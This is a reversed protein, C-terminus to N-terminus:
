ANTLVGLAQLVGHRTRPDLLKSTGGSPAPNDPDGGGAGQASRGTLDTPNGTWPPRGAHGADATEEPDPGEHILDDLNTARDLHGALEHVLERIEAPDLGALLSRVSVSTADYAPFVVPGLEHVDADHVERQEGRGSRTWTDGGDAIEFRFSMGKVANGAIAQRIPEVVPNDFLEASVFLGDARDDLDLIEAIPVAGVRPDRGHEWQMVPTRQELSRKFAGARITEDFDGKLDRIRTPRGYVAAYGELRRGKKPDRGRLEFDFNRVCVGLTRTEGGDVTSRGKAAPKTKALQALFAPTVKGTQDVGLKKQAAKVAQTTLPGLKGDVALKKGKADTLGLRNLAEQLRRVRPDGGKIGYGTGTKNDPDYALTGDDGAKKAAPRTGRPRTTTKEAPSKEGQAKAFQGGTTTGQPARPHAGEDWAALRGEAADTHDNESTYALKALFESDAAKKARVEADDADNGARDDESAYLAAVQDDASQRSDHCAVLEGDDDKVVGFRGEGCEAHDEVVHWPV